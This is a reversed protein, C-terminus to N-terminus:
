VANVAVATVDDGGARLRHIFASWIDYLARDSGTRVDLM